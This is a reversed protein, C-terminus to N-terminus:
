QQYILSNMYIPPLYYDFGRQQVRWMMMKKNIQIQTKGEYSFMDLSCPTWCMFDNGKEIQEQNAFDMKEENTLKQMSKSPASKPHSNSSLNAFSEDLLVHTNASMRVLLPQTMSRHIQGMGPCVPSLLQHSLFWVFVLRLFSLCWSPCFPSVSSVPSWKLWGPPRQLIHSLTSLSPTEQFCLSLNWSFLSCM